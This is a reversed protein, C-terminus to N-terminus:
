ISMSSSRSRVSLRCKERTGESSIPSSRCTTILAETDTGHVPYLSVGISGGPAIALNEILLHAALAGTIREALDLADTQEVGSLLIAFEDGGIRGAIDGPRISARLRDAVTRLVDDGALHGLDDNIGKFNDLDVLLLAFHDRSWDMAPLPLSMSLLRAISCGTLGDHSALFEIKRRGMRAETVDSGIGRYGRFGGTDDYVPHGTLSLWRVTGGISVALTADKFAIREKMFLVVNM